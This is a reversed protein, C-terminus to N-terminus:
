NGKIASSLGGFVSSPVAKTIVDSVLTLGDEDPNASEDDLNIEEKTLVKRMKMARSEVEEINAAASTRKHIFGQMNDLKHSETGERNAITDFGKDDMLPQINSAESGIDAANYNVTSFAASVSRKIRLMERFTEENGHLVEFGHWEKWYEPKRRPDAMQSGYTFAARARDIEQLSAEMKAYDCCMEVAYKDELSSIAQEFIPRSATAGLYKMTKCIYIKYAEFKDDPPVFTCLREYVGLARKTLGYEEEFAGNLIFFEASCEAPCSELCRDFLERMRGVKSGGYRSQFAELYKKWIIRGGDHPFPFLDVGREFASFSDEFHKHENLYSAFNLIHLPTVIKLEIAKNYADKTTQLTGLSEELDFLLNWQRISRHLGRAAKSSSKTFSNASFQRSISLADNWNKNRLEMEVWSSFCKSMDDTEMFNYEPTPCCIRKFVERASNIDNLEMEYLRALRIYLTAPSGNVAYRANVSKVAEELTQIARIYEKATLILDVRKLWEGINNPNQRLLVRNLLLPRRNMVNEARALALEVDIMASGEGEENDNEDYDKGGLLINWDVADIDNDLSNSNILSEAKSQFGSEDNMEVLAEVIGEEFRVYADFILSFDRVRSVREMAEEYIGRAMDFDGKAVYFQALKAWLSGEIEGLSAQLQEQQSKLRKLKDEETEGETQKSVDIEPSLSEDVSEHEIKNRGKEYLPFLAARVISPFDIGISEIEEPHDTCLDALKMWLDHRSSGQFSNFDSDNLIEVLVLAAEGFHKSEVAIDVLLERALPNYFRAYRRLVSLTTDKPVQLPFSKNSLLDMKCMDVVPGCKTGFASSGSSARTVFLGASPVRGLVFCLYESWVLDHQTAPLSVLARNFLRRVTTVDCSPDNRIVFAIYSLWIRPYKNMRILSREFASITSRYRSNKGSCMQPYSLSVDDNSLNLSMFKDSRFDLYNKWLKYSGPLLLLAREALLNRLRFLQVLKGAIDSTPIELGGIQVSLKTPRDTKRRKTEAEEMAEILVDVEELYVMWTSVDYLCPTGRKNLSEEHQLLNPYSVLEKLLYEINSLKSNDAM